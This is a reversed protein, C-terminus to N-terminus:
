FLDPQGASDKHSYHDKTLNENLAIPELQPYAKLLGEPVTLKKRAFLFKLQLANAAAQGRFHNNFIAFVRQPAKVVEIAKQLADMEANNYLYDYRADRNADKAFWNRYNRGHYRFYASKNTQESQLAISDGIVPQDINVLLAGAESLLAHVDAHNWSGHRFEVAVEYEFFSKLIKKLKREQEMGRRFSWPFQLLLPGLRESQALPALAAKFDHAERGDPDLGHHSFGQYIKMLFIFDPFNRVKEAWGRCMAPAPIRYFSSNVEITNFLGAMFQLESFHRPRRAPYVIGKWDPYSWGATGAYLNV